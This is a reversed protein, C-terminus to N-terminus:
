RENYDRTHQVPPNGAQLNEQQQMAFQLARLMMIYDANNNLTARRVTVQQREAIVIIKGDPEIYDGTRHYSTSYVVKNPKENWQIM